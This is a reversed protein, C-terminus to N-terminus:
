ATSTVLLAEVVVVVVGALGLLVPGVLLTGTGTSRKRGMVWSM